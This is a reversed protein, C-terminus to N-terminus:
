TRLLLTLDPGRHQDRSDTDQSETPEAEVKGCKRTGYALFWIQIKQFLLCTSRVM